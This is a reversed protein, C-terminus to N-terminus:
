IEINEVLITATLEIGLQKGQSYPWQIQIEM